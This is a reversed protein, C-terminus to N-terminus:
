GHTRELAACLDRCELLMTVADTFSKDVKFVEEAPFGKRALNLNHDDSLCVAEKPKIIEDLLGRDQGWERITELHRGCREACIRSAEATNQYVWAEISYFPTLRVLRALAAKIDKQLTEDSDGASPNKARQKRLAADLSPQVYTRVFESLKAVNESTHREAWARDGDIHFLVFGPLDDQLLKDAIARALLVIKQHDFRSTSRWQNGCMVQKARDNQPEFIIRHTGCSPDVIQLMKKVLAELVGHAQYSSDETLVLLTL